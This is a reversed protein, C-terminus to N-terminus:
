LTDDMWVSAQQPNQGGLEKRLHGTNTEKLGATPHFM